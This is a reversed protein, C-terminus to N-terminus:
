LRRQHRIPRTSEKESPSTAPVHLDIATTWNRPTSNPVAKSACEARGSVMISRLLSATPRCGTGSNRTRQILWLESGRLRLLKRISPSIVSWVVVVNKQFQQFIIASQMNESQLSPLLMVPPMVGRAAIHNTTDM